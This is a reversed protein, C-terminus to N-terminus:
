LNPCHLPFYANYEFCHHWKRISSLRIKTFNLVARELMAVDEIKVPTAMKTKPKPSFSNTEPNFYSWAFHSKTLNLKLDLAWKFLWLKRIKTTKWYKQLKLCFNASSIGKKAAFWTKNVVSDIAAMKKQVWAVM